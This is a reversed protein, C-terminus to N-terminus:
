RHEGIVKWKPAPQFLDAPIGVMVVATSMLRGHVTLFFCCCCFLVGGYVGPAFLRDVCCVRLLRKWPVGLGGAAAVIGKM